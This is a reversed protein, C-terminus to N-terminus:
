SFMTAIVKPMKVAVDIALKAFYGVKVIGFSGEGLLDSTYPFPICRKALASAPNLKLALTRHENHHVSVPAFAKHNRVTSTKSHDFMNLRAEHQKVKQQYKLLKMKLVQNEKAQLQHDKIASHLLERQKM